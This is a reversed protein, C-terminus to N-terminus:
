ADSLLQNDKTDIMQILSDWGVVEGTEKNRDVKVTQKFEGEAKGM